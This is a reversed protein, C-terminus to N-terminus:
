SRISELCCYQKRRSLAYSHHYFIYKDLNLHCLSLINTRGSQFSGLDLAQCQILWCRSLLFLCGLAEFGTMKLTLPLSHCCLWSAVDNNLLVEVGSVSIFLVESQQEQTKNISYYDNINFIYSFRDSNLSKDDKLYTMLSLLDNMLM